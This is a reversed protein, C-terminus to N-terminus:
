IRGIDRWWKRSSLDCVVGSSSEWWSVQAGQIWPGPVTNLVNLALISRATLFEYRIRTFISSCYM